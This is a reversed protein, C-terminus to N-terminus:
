QEVKVGYKAKAVSGKKFTYSGYIIDEKDIGHEVIFGGKAIFRLVCEDAYDTRQYVEVQVNWYENDKDPLGNVILYHNEDYPGYASLSDTDLVHYM